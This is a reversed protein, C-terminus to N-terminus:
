PEWCQVSSCAVESGLNFLPGVSYGTGAYVPVGFIGALARMLPQDQGARCHHLYVLGGDAAFAGNLRSLDARFRPLTASSVWDDGIEIGSPSGHDYIHLATIGLGGTKALVGDVMTRVSTMLVTNFTLLRTFPGAMSGIFNPGRRGDVASIEM